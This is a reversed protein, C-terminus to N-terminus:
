TSQTSYLMAGICALSSFIHGAIMESENQHGQVVKSYDMRQFNSNHHQLLLKVIKFASGKSCSCTAQLSITVHCSALNTDQEALARRTAWSCTGNHSASARVTYYLPEQNDQQM